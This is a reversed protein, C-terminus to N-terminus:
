NEDTTTSSEANYGEIEIEKVTYKIEDNENYKDLKTFKGVWPEVEGKDDVVGDLSITKGTPKGNSYLEVTIPSTTVKEEHKWEKIVKVETQETNIIKFTFEGSADESITSKYGSPPDVEKVTYKIENGESDKQQLDTFEGYWDNEKNLTVRILNGEKDKVEKGNALLQVKIENPRSNTNDGDLWEKKVTLKEPEPEGREVLIVRQWSTNDHAGLCYITVKYKQQRAYQKYENMLESINVETTGASTDSYYYLDDVGDNDTDEPDGFGARRTVFIKENKLSDSKRIGIGYSDAESYEVWSDWYYYLALQSEYYLKSNAGYGLQKEDESLIAALINNFEGSCEGKKYFENENAPNVSYFTAKEGNIEVKAKPYLFCTGPPLKGSHNVCYVNDFALAISNGNISYTCRKGSATYWNLGKYTASSRSLSINSLMAILIIAIIAILILKSKSKLMKM